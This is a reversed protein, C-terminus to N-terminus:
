RRVFVAIGRARARAAIESPLKYPAFADALGAELVPFESRESGLVVYAVSPQHAQRLLEASAFHRPQPPRRGAFWIVRQMDGAVNEATGLREGLHEGVEREAIRDPPTVKHWGDWMGIGCLVALLVNRLLVPLRALGAACLPVVAVATTLFFRKRVVFTVMGVVDLLLWCWLSRAFRPRFPAAVALALMPGYAEVLAIPVQRLNGLIDGRENGLDDRQEHFAVIPLPDFGFGCLGRWLPLLGFVIAFPPLARWAARGQAVFLCVPLAAAEPRLWSALGACLGAWWYRGTAGCWFVLAALLLFPSETYTEAANRALLSSTALLLAAPLGAGTRLREALTAVPFAALGACVSCVLPGALVAPLGLCMPVACLLPLLPPFVEGVPTSFDGAAFREAMWLYSVGDESPVPTRAALMWRWMVAAVAIWLLKRREDPDLMFVWRRPTEPLPTM